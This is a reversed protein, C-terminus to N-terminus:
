KCCFPIPYISIAEKWFQKRLTVIEDVHNNDETEMAAKDRLLSLCAIIDAFIHSIPRGTEFLRQNDFRLIVHRLFGNARDLLQQFLPGNVRENFRNDYFAKRLDDILSQNIPLYFQCPPRHYKFDTSTAIGKPTDDRAM